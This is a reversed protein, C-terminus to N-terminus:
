EELHYITRAYIVRGFSYPNWQDKYLGGKTSLVDVYFLICVIKIIVHGKQVKLDNCAYLVNTLIIIKISPQLNHNTADYDGIRGLSVLDINLM